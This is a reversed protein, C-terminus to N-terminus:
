PIRRLRTGVLVWELLLLIAALGAVAPFLEDYQIRITSEIRTKELGDIIEFTERMGGADTVRFYRGDTAAAVSRLVEEDLDMRMYRTQGRYPIPVEGESGVGIAYVRIGLARAAEAAAQPGIQGANNRGDTILVAVRSRADSDRLRNIATALGMGMATSSQEPPEAQIDQLLQLLMDHDLTLPGRTAALSGFVILGIRDTPRGAIFEAVTSRAVELRNLPEFDQAMMSYSVDMAIVIDVGHTTVTETTSGAQPRALALVALILVFGRIWPLLGEIRVWASGGVSSLAGAAPLSLRADRNRRRRIMVWAGALAPGLLLFMWPDAFRFIM